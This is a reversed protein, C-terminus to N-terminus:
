KTILHSVVADGCAGLGKYTREAPTMANIAAALAPRDIEDPSVLAYQLVFLAASVDPLPVTVQREVKVWVAPDAPDFEAKPRNPHGNLEDAFLVGWVYREFPGHRVMTEALRRGDFREMGPVPAHIEAFSQGVKELPNWGSPFCVQGAAMWDRGAAVRHIVLDEQVQRAVSNFVWRATWHGAARLPGNLPLPYHDSVFNVAAAYVAAPCDSEVQCRQFCLARFKAREFWEAHRADPEFVAAADIKTLAPKVSYGARYPHRDM